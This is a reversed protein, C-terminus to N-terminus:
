LHKCSSGPIFSMGPCSWSPGFLRTSVQGPIFIRVIGWTFLGGNRGPIAVTPKRFIQPLRSFIYMFGGGQFNLFYYAGRAMAMYVVCLGMSTCTCSLYTRRASTAAQWTTAFFRRINKRSGTGKRNKKRDFCLALRWVCQLYAYLGPKITFSAEFGPRIKCYELLVSPGPRASFDEGRGQEVWGPVFWTMFATSNRGPDLWGPIFDEM